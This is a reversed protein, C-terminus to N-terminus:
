QTYIALDTVLSRLSGNGGKCKKLTSNSSSARWVHMNILERDRKLHGRSVGLDPRTVQDVLLVQVVTHVVTAGPDNPIARDRFLM